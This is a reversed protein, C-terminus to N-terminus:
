HATRLNSALLDRRGCSRFSANEAFILIIIYLLTKRTATFLYTGINRPRSARPPLFSRVPVHPVVLIDFIDFFKMVAGYPIQVFLFYILM